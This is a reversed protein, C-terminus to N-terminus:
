PTLKFAKLLLMVDTNYEQPVADRGIAWAYIQPDENTALLVEYRDLQGADFEPLYAKAFRGLLLDTEKMGTYSSRYILRKLRDQLSEAM